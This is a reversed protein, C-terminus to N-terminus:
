FNEGVLLPHDARIKDVAHHRHNLVIQVVVDFKGLLTLVLHATADDEGTLADLCADLLFAVGCLITTVNRRPIVVLVVRKDIDHEHVAGNGAITTGATVSADLMAIHHHSGCVIGVAYTVDEVDVGRAAASPRLVVVLLSNVVGTCLALGHHSEDIAHAARCTHIEGSEAISAVIHVRFILNTADAHHGSEISFLITRGASEAVLGIVLKVIGLREILVLFKTINGVISVAVEQNLFQGFETNLETSVNLGGTRLRLIFVQM